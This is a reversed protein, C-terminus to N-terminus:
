KMGRRREIIMYAENISKSKEVATKQLDAGLSAVRDPHYQSMLKRYARKVEDNNAQPTLGLVGFYYADDKEGPKRKGEQQRHQQEQQKHQGGSKGSGQQQNSSRGSRPAERRLEEEAKRLEEDFAAKADKDEDSFMANVSTKFLRGIRRLIQDYSM